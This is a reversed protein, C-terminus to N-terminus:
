MVYGILSHQGVAYLLYAHITHLRNFCMLIKAICEVCCYAPFNLVNLKGDDKGLEM